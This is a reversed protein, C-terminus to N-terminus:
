EANKESRPHVDGLAAESLPVCWRIFTGAGPASEVVFSGGRADARKRMNRLGSEHDPTAFGMGDDRVEAVVAAQLGSGEISVRVDVTTPSAHRAANTLSEMLVAV